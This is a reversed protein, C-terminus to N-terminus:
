GFIRLLLKKVEQWIENNVSKYNLNSFWMHCPGILGESLYESKEENSWKLHGTEEDM